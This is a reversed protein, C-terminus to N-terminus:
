HEHNNPVFTIFLALLVCAFLSLCLLDENTM